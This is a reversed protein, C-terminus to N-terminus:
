QGTSGFLDPQLDRLLPEPVSSRLTWAVTIPTEGQWSDFDLQGCYYFPPAKGAATKSSKRVFLHVELGQEGHHQIQQGHKGHQTTRNQSQWQFHNASLFRDQYRHEAPLASKDLTVLLILYPPRSLFGVDWARSYEQGFLSAMERRHYTKWLTPGSETGSHPAVVYGSETPEVSVQFRTGPRGADPGFWTRLLEPLVNTDSGRRRLVNVAIKAFKAEYEHGDANATTWGDPIGATSSRDPLKLIPIGGSHIVKCLFGETERMGGPRDLYEALRWDAIERVLEQLPTRLQPPVATDFRLVKDAYSFFPRGGTGSGGVWAAIPNVELLRGLKEPNELADGVDARLRTNRRALRAFAEALEELPLAGPLSDRNLLALLLLMKFSKTMPTSELADLFDGGAALAERHTAALEGISDLFRIWSGARHRVSRPNYGEHFAESATPREGHLEHFTRCFSELAEEAKPPRILARLISKAELDYTVECGPPLGDDGTELRQLALSVERDSTGAGLLARVGNLFIRHNGIYDIVRLHQKGDAKRLGRGFQQQWLIRSETPRLMLITDIAPLDLGENFIDVAFLVKLEGSQLRELSVTRPAGTPGSHVAAAPVGRNCFFDSMFEAHRISVCFALTRDGGLRALQDLANQAREQTAAALTLAEEDFRRSRWPINKYDILDPVGFYKFRSLHDLQIGRLLDCRYALNEQCLSLLDGGDTREPTATLGLLFRPEFYDILKRYTRACAHHFEDIIIYDFADAAFAQLNKARTLTQVSAFVVRATPSKEAGVFLGLPADPAIRRFTSRAQNLIEERHAVFLVRRFDGNMSDFASLWTKGLGTALVVLAATNGEARTAALADLAERQIEHPEPPPELIEAAVGSLPSPPHRVRDAVLSLKTLGREATSEPRRKAYAQIWDENLLRTSSHAFLRDFQRTIEVLGAVDRSSVIRYNWEVGSTLATATLNSSGVFAIGDSPPTRFIYAKPHFSVTKTEFVRLELRGSSGPRNQLDLLRRLAVPDTVGLYDGTLLRIHGGRDLVDRLRSEIKAIGSPLVFAVAIDVAMAYDLHALLHPLLQDEGGHVLPSHHPAKVALLPDDGRALYDAKEAIVNRVGGRPNAADNKYRPIM